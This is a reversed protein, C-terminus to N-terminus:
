GLDDITATWLGDSRGAPMSSPLLGAEASDTTLYTVYVFVRAHNMDLESREIPTM